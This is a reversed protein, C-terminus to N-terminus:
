ENSVLETRGILYAKIEAIRAADNDTGQKQMLASPDVKDSRQGLDAMLTNAAEASQDEAMDEYYFTQSVHGKFHEEFYACNECINALRAAVEKVTVHVENEKVTAHVQNGDRIGAGLEIEKTWRDTKMAKAFSYAQAIKDRREVWYIRDFKVNLLDVGASKWEIYQDIHFKVGFIGGPSATGRILMAMYQDFARTTPELGLEHCCARAYRANFWESPWGMTGTTELRQSLLNSGVRPTSIIAYKKIQEPLRTAHRQANEALRRAYGQVVRDTESLSAPAANPLSQM